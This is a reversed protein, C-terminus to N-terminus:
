SRSACRVRGSPAHTFSVGSSTSMYRRGEGGKLDSVWLSSLLRSCDATVARELRCHSLRQDKEQLMSSNSDITAEECLFSM